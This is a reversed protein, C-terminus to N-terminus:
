QFDYGFESLGQIQMSVVVPVAGDVRAYLSQRPALVFSPNSNDEFVRYPGQGPSNFESPTIGLRISSGFCNVVIREHENGSRYLLVTGLVNITTFEAM